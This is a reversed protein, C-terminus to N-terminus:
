VDGSAGPFILLTLGVVAVAGFLASTPVAVYADHLTVNSDIPVSARGGHFKLMTGHALVAGMAGALLVGLGIWRRLRM